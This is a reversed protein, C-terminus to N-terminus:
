KFTNSIKIEILGLEYSSQLRHLNKYLTVQTHEYLCPVRWATLLTIQSLHGQLIKLDSLAPTAALSWFGAEQPEHTEICNSGVMFLAPRPLWCFVSRLLTVKSALEYIVNCTGGHRRSKSQFFGTAQQSSVGPVRMHHPVLSELWCGVGVQWGRAAGDQFWLKWGWDLRWIITAGGSRSQGGLLSGGGLIVCSLVGFEQDATHRLYYVNM